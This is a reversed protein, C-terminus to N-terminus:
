RMEANRKEKGEKCLKLQENRKVRKTRRNKRGRKGGKKSGEKGGKLKGKRSREKWEGEGM